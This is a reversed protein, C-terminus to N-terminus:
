RQERSAEGADGIKEGSEEATPRGGESTQVNSSVLPVEHQKLNLVVNELYAMSQLETQGLDSTAMIASRAPLGYQGDKLYQDHMEKKNFRTVDLLNIRFKYSGSMQKLQKNIWREIQRLVRFIIAQDNVTSLELTSSSPDEGGGFLLKNVGAQSWLSAEAKTVLDTETLSGSKEFNWDSVEMPTLIAGINEPLVNLLQKYFEKALDYDILFEGDDNVPIELSIMKYNSTESANKTIARYDEIDALASFLSVFPPIPVMTTENIKICISKQGDLEQWRFATGQSKYQNYKTTFEPPYMLLDDKYGDFYSFDYAFTFVGDEKGCIKCYTPDLNQLMFSDKTEWVYGYYVDDRFAIELVQQFEHPINMIALRDSVKQYTSRLKADNVTKSLDLKWPSITYSFTPMGAFYQILRRYYNSINFLYTSMNRLNAENTSPNELYSVIDTKSYKSYTPSKQNNSQLNRLMLKNQAAYTAFFQDADFTKNPTGDSSMVRIRPKIEYDEFWKIPKSEKASQESKSTTPKARSRVPVVRKKNGLM